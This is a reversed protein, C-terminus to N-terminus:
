FSLVFTNYIWRIFYFLSPTPQRNSRCKSDLPKLGPLILLYFNGNSLLLISKAERAMRQMLETTFHYLLIWACSPIRYDPKKEVSGPGRCFIHQHVSTPGSQKSVPLVYSARHLGQLSTFILKLTEEKRTMSETTTYSLLWSSNAISHVFPSIRPLAEM